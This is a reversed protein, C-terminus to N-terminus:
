TKNEESNGGRLASIIEVLVFIGLPIGVIMFMYQSMGGGSFFDSIVKTTSAMLNNPLSFMNKRFHVSAEAPANVM